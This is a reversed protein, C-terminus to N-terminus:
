WQNVFPCRALKVKGIMQTWRHVTDRTELWDALPLSPWPEVAIEM